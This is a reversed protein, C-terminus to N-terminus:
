LIAEYKANTRNKSDLIWLVEGRKEGNADIESGNVILMIEDRRSPPIKEDTFYDQLKKTFVKGGPMKFSIRDGPLRTRLVLPFTIKDYIFAKTCPTLNKDEFKEVTIKDDGSQTEECNTPTVEVFLNTANQSTKIEVSFNKSPESIHAFFNENESWAKSVPSFRVNNYEKSVVVGPLHVEGSGHASILALVAFVHTHTINQLAIARRIVRQAIAPHLTKIIEADLTLANTKKEVECTPPHFAEGAAVVCKEFAERTATEMFDEDIRLLEAAKAINKKANANVETELLPLVIKRVRNRTFDTSNNSEDTIFATRREHLFAEVEERSVELLPRVIHGNIPSIGGLGRLGAGRCLNMLITEANDDATHGTAIKKQTREGGATASSSDQWEDSASYERPPVRGGGRSSRADELFKYRLIRASEEIGLKHKTAYKKVDASFVQLPVGLKTCLKRVFAEDADSQSGRLNHNIHVASIEGLVPLSRSGHQASKKSHAQSSEFESHLDLLCLLLAVSDAGGSLAVIVDTAESCGTFM